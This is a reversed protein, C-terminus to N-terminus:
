HELSDHVEEGSLEFDGAVCKLASLSTQDAFRFVVTADGSSGAGCYTMTSCEIRVGAAAEGALPRVLECSAGEALERPARSEIDKIGTGLKFSTEARKLLSTCHATRCQREQQRVYLLYLVFGVSLAFVVSSAVFLMAPGVRRAQRSALSTM